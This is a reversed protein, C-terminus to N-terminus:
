PAHTPGARPSAPGTVQGAEDLYDLLDDMALAAAQERMQAAAANNPDFFDAKGSSRADDVELRRRYRGVNFVRVKDGIWSFFLELRRSIYSKGRGPLGVMVIVLKGSDMIAKAKNGVETGAAVAERLMDGTSVHPVQLAEVIQAAQTGKGAGPPGLLLIRAKSM